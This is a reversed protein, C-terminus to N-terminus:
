GTAPQKGAADKREPALYVTNGLDRLIRANQLENKYNSKKGIPRHPSLFIGDEVQKWVEDPFLRDASEKAKRANKEIRLSSKADARRGTWGETTESKPPNMTTLEMNRHRYM